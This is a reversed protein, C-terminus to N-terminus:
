IPLQQRELESVRADQMLVLLRICRNPHDMSIKLTLVGPVTQFHLFPLTMEWGDLSLFMPAFARMMAIVPLQEQLVM